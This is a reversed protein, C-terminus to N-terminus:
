QCGDRVVSMVMVKSSGKITTSPNGTGIQRDISPLGLLVHGEDTSSLIM